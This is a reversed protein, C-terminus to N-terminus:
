RRGDMIRAECVTTLRLRTVSACNEFLVGCKLRSTQYSWIGSHKQQFQNGLRARSWTDVYELPLNRSTDCSPCDGSKINDDNPLAFNPNVLECHDQGHGATDTIPLFPGGEHSSMYIRFEDRDNCLVIGVYKGYRDNHQILQRGSCSLSDKPFDFTRAEWLLPDHSPGTTSCAPLMLASLLLICSRTSSM